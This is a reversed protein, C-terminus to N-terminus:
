PPCGIQYTLRGHGKAIPAQGADWRMPSAGECLQQLEPITYARLQSVVGDWLCTLPVMPLIYTWFLRRWRFPRMFPTVIWVFLPTLVMPLARLSRESM